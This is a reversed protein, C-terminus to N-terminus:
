TGKIGEYWLIPNRQLVSHCRSGNLGNNILDLSPKVLLQTAASGSIEVLETGKCGDEHSINQWYVHLPCNNDRLQRKERLTGICCGREHTKSAVLKENFPSIRSYGGKKTLQHVKPFRVCRIDSPIGYKNNFKEKV